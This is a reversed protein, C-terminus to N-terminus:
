VAESRVHDCGTCDGTYAIMLKNLKDNFWNGCTNCYLYGKSVNTCVVCGDEPSKPCDHDSQLLKVQARKIQDSDKTNM